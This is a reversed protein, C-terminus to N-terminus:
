CKGACTLPTQQSRAAWLCCGPQGCSAAEQGLLSQPKNSVSTGQAQPDDRSPLSSSTRNPNVRRRHPQPICTFCLQLSPQARERAGCSAGLNPDWPLAGKTRAVPRGQVGHSSCRWQGRLEATRTADRAAQCLTCGAQRHMACPAPQAQKPQAPILAWAECGM